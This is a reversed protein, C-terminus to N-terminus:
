SQSGTPPRKSNKERATESNDSFDADEDDKGIEMEKQGVKSMEREHKKLYESKIVDVEPENSM